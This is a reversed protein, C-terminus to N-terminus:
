EQWAYTSDHWPKRVTKKVHGAPNAALHELLKFVLETKEPQNLLAALTEATFERGGAAKLAD